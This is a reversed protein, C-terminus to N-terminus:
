NLVLDAEQCRKMVKDLNVLCNEFTKDNVSFDDMFVEMVKKILDSFIVMMCREFSAPANCLGFSMRRYTFTGYPCTFTAKSQDDPDIPIQHYGSYGDLYCFSHNTLRELMEDIFPLLFHDKRTAKNIKRYDICM